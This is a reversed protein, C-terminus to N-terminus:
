EEKWFPRPLRTIHRIQHQCDRVFDIKDPRRSEEEAMELYDKYLRGEKIGWKKGTKLTKELDRSFLWLGVGGKWRAFIANRHAEGIM